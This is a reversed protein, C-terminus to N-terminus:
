LKELFYIHFYTWGTYLTLIRVWSRQFMHRRGYGSSWPELKYWIRLIPSHWWPSPLFSSTFIRAYCSPLLGPRTTLPPSECELLQSNLDRCRISSPCKKVNIQQLFQLTHKFPRFYIFFLCTNAWKKLFVGYSFKCLAQNSITITLLINFITFRSWLLSSINACRLWAM